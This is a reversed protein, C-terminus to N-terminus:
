SDVPAPGIASKNFKAINIQADTPDIANPTSPAYPIKRTPKARIRGCGRM